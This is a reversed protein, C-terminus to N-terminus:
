FTILAKLIVLWRFYLLGSIKKAIGMLPWMSVPSVAPLLCYKNEGPLLRFNITASANQPLVNDAVGAELMTPAVTVSVMARTEPSIRSLM